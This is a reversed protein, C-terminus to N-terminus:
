SSMAYDDKCAIVTRATTFECSARAKPQETCGRKCDEAQFGACRMASETVAAQCQM